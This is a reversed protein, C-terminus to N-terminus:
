GLSGLLQEQQPLVYTTLPNAKKVETPLEDPTPEFLNLRDWEVDVRTHIRGALEADYPRDEVLLAAVNEPPIDQVEYCVAPFDAADHLITPAAGFDAEILAQLHGQADGDPSFLAARAVGGCAILRPTALKLSEALPHSKAPYQAALRTALDGMNVGKLASLVSARAASRLKEPLSSRIESMQALSAQFGTPGFFALPFEIDLQAALEAMRGRLADTLPRTLPDMAGQDSTSFSQPDFESEVATLERRLDRLQQSLVSIEKEVAQALSAM